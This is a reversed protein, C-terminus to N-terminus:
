KGSLRYGREDFSRDMDGGLGIMKRIMEIDLGEKRVRIDFYLLTIAVSLVPALLADIVTVALFTIDEELDIIQFRDALFGISGLVVFPLTLGVCRWFDCSLLETSRRLADRYVRRELVVVHVSLTWRVTYILGPLVLALYLFILFVMEVLVTGLMRLLLAPPLQRIANLIGTKVGLVSHAAVLIVAGQLVTGGAIRLPPVIWIISPGPKDWDVPKLALEICEPLALCLLSLGVLVGFRERYLRVARGLIELNGCPRLDTRAELEESPLEM